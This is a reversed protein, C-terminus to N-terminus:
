IDEVDDRAFLNIDELPCTSHVMVCKIVSNNWCFFICIDSM